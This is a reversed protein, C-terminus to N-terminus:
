GKIIEVHKPPNKEMLAVYQDLEERKMTAPFEIRSGDSRQILIRAAKRANAVAFLGALLGVLAASGLNVMAVIVGPEAGRDAGFLPDGRTPTIRMARLSLGEWNNQAAAADLERRLTAPSIGAAIVEIYYPERSEM